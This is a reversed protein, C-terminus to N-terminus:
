RAAVRLTAAERERGTAVLLAALRRAADRTKAHAPGRDDLLRAYGTRLLPEAEGYRRQALLCGGLVSTTNAVLWHRATLAAERAARAARLHPEGERPRGGDCLAQGLVVQAYAVLPHDPPLTTRATTLASDALTAAAAYRGELWHLNALTTQAVAVAPHAEGYLARRMALAERYLPEAEARRGTEELASGYNHLAHATEAHARAGHFRRTLALVERHLPVAEAFRGQSGLFVALNNLTEATERSAPDLARRLALAERFLPGAEADRGTDQLLTALGNLAAALAARASSDPPAARLDATARRYLPEADDMAGAHYHLSALATRAGAAEPSRDGHLRRRLALARELHPGAEGYLGLSQYVRGLATRAAAEVDPQGELAALRAGAEGLVDAVRVERGGESADAAAFLDQLFAAVQEAKAAESRARDRERAALRGQWLAATLGVVLAFVAFAAATVGVRHRGVFKRARYAATAPRAEVPEGDLYRGVDDALAEASAYRREPEKALAKLCITDLDGRLRQPPLHGATEPTRAVVASPRDPETECVVREIESPTRTRFHYPRQGTLLEFLLVGLAYVDTATTVPGGRVQEPAAYEPTMPATLTQTLGETEPADLLRAIGFDLLKVRGEPTVLVNSPKLDRHVVLHRHAYAVAECVGVFLRLRDEVSLAHAEAYATLPVGDVLEMAFYPRGEDDTGGDLLRAIGPHELRALLQREVRFRPALEPGGRVLKLAAAQEFQGDARAARYVAGMGGHGLLGEIRWPGIRRGTHDPPAEAPLAATLADSADAADHAAALARVEEALAPDESAAEELFAPRAEVPHSLAEDLLAKLREWRAPDM